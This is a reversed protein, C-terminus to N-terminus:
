KDMWSIEVFRDMSLLHQDETNKSQNLDRHIVKLAFKLNQKKFYAKLSEARKNALRQNYAIKGKRDAFGSLFIQSPNAKKIEGVILNIKQKAKSSIVASNKTFYVKRLIKQDPAELIVANKDAFKTKLDSVIERQSLNSVEINIREAVASTDLDPISISTSAELVITEPNKAVIPNVISEPVLDSNQFRFIDECCYKQDLLNAGKRNSALYGSNGDPMLQFYHDDGLSNIPKNLLKRKSFAIGNVEAMFIDKGGFGQFGDSSFYFQKGSADVFPSEDNGASNIQFGGNLAGGFRKRKRNYLSCWIDNKGSGGKRDSVFFLVDQDTGNIKLSAYFPQSSNYKSKNIKESLKRISHFDGGATMAAEYIACKLLGNKGDTCRTFFFKRGDPSFCGNGIHYGPSNLKKILSLEDFKGDPRVVYKFLQITNFNPQGPTFEVLSDRRLSSFIFATDGLSIPSFDAYASNPFSFSTDMVFQEKSVPHQFSSTLGSKMLKIETWIGGNFPPRTAEFLALNEGAENNKGQRFQSFALNFLTYPDPKKSKLFALKQFQPEAMEFQKLALYSKGLLFLTHYSRPYKRKIRELEEIASLYGGNAMLREIDSFHHVSTDADVPLVVKHKKYQATSLFAYIIFGVFLILKQM